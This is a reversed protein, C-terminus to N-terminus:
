GGARFRGRPRAGSTGQAGLGTRRMGGARVAAGGRSAGGKQERRDESCRRRGPGRLLEDLADGGLDAVLDDESGLHHLHRAADLLAHARGACRRRLDELHPAVGELAQDVVLQERGHDLTQLEGGIAFLDVARDRRDGSLVTQAQLLEERADRAVAERDLLVAGLDLALDFTALDDVRHDPRPDRERLFLDAREVRLAEAVLRAATLLDVHPM